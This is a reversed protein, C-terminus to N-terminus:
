TGGECDACVPYGGCDGRKRDKGDRRIWRERDAIGQHCKGNIERDEGTVGCVTLFLSNTTPPKPDDCHDMVAAVPIEMAARARAMREEKPDSLSPEHPPGSEFRGGAAKIVCKPCREEDVAEGCDVCAKARVIQKRTLREYMVAGVTVARKTAEARLEEDLALSIKVTKTLTRSDRTESM